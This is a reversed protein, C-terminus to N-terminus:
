KSSIATFGLEPRDLQGKAILLPVVRNLTDVPIAFSVGSRTKTSTNMGIVRGSSDLLPGGSNGPNIAADIQIAGRIKRQLAEDTVVEKRLGSIIGQTLTHDLGFPNGIALVSQGVQLDKSTGLPLPKMGTLPAFVRLVAIDYSLSKGILRARYTKGDALTVQLDEAESLPAGAVDVMIVHYNTVVHGLDDWVFGTGTGPPIAWTDGTEQNALVYIQTASAIYVVSPKAVKFIRVRKAEQADLPKAPVVPRVKAGKRGVEIAAAEEPSISQTVVEEPPIPQTAAAEAQASARGGASLLLGALALRSAM